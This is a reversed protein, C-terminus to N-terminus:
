RETEDKRRESGATRDPGCVTALIRKMYDADRRSAGDM